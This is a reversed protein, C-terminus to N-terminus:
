RDAGSRSGGEAMGRLESGERDASRQGHPADLQEDVGDRPDHQPELRVEHQRAGAHVPRRSGRAPQGIRLQAM